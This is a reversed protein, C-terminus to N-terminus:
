WRLFPAPDYVMGADVPSLFHFYQDWVEELAKEGYEELLKGYSRWHAGEYEPLNTAAYAAAGNRAKRIFQELSRYPFHRIELGSVTRGVVGEVGHNGQMIRAQPQWRFAVKPLAGPDCQRWTLRKFPIPSPADISTAFHNYLDATVVSVYEPQGRLFDAVRTEKCYWVEDADFPVIWTAGMSAAQRALNTMKTSQYYAPETDEQVLVEVAARLKARKLCDLTRDTSLNDAVIILDFGEDIMQNVVHAAVDEEDKLMSVAAVIM